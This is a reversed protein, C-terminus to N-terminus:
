KNEIAREAQSKRLYLPMLDSDINKNNTNINRSGITMLISTMWSWPM